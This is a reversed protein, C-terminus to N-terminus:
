TCGANGFPSQGMRWPPGTEGKAVFEKFQCGTGAVVFWSVHRRLGSRLSLAREIMPDNYLRKEFEAPELRGEVFAVISAIAEDMPVM